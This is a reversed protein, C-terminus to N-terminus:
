PSAVSGCNRRISWCKFENYSRPAGLTYGSMTRVPANLTGSPGGPVIDYRVAVGNWGYDEGASM